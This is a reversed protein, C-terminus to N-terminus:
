WWWKFRMGQASKHFIVAGDSGPKPVENSHVLEFDIEEKDAAIAKHEGTSPPGTAAMFTGSDQVKSDTYSVGTEKRLCNQQGKPLPILSRRLHSSSLLEQKHEKDPWIASQTVLHQHGPYFPQTQQQMNNWSYFSTPVLPYIPVKDQVPRSTVSPSEVVSQHLMESARSQLQHMLRTWFIILVRAMEDRLRGLNFDVSETHKSVLPKLFAQYVYETGKTDPHWLYVVFALKAGSYFPLWSIFTDAIRECGTFVAIIIWYQCWMYLQESKPKGCDIVKFCKYAPYFYGLALIAIRFLFDM